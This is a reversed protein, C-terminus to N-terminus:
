GYRDGAKYLDIQVGNQVHRTTHAMESCLRSLSQRYGAIQRQVILIMADTEANDGTCYISCSHNGDPATWHLEVTKCYDEGTTQLDTLLNELDGATDAITKAAATMERLSLLQFDTDPEPDPEPDDPKKRIRRVALWALLAYCGIVWVAM